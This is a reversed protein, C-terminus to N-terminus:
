RNVTSPQSSVVSELSDVVIEDGQRLMGGKVVRCMMGRRGLLATMLGPRIEEMLECPECAASVELEVEGLSLRQGAKLTNVSIGETTINERIMGPTLNMQRLTEVDMLLVQRKGAPRAHACGEFGHNEIACVERLEEMGTHKKPSRFLHVVRAM